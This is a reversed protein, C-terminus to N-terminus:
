RLLTEVRALRDELRRERRDLRRELGPAKPSKGQIREIRKEITARKKALVSDVEVSQATAPGGTIGALLALAAVVGALWERWHRAPKGQSAATLIEVAVGPSKEWGDLLAVGDAELVAEVDRELAARLDFDAGHSGPDFGNELDFEHPSQVEFGEDRLQEAADTFAPFNWEPIGTM